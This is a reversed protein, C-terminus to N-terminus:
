RSEIAPQWPPLRIRFSTPCLLHGTGSRPRGGEMPPKPRQHQSLAECQEAYPRRTASAPPAGPEGHAAGAHASAAFRSLSLHALLDDEPHITACSFEVHHTVGPTKHFFDNNPR